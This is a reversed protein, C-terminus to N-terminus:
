NSTINPTTKELDHPSVQDQRDAEELQRVDRKEQLWAAAQSNVSARLVKHQKIEKELRTQLEQKAIECTGFAHQLTFHPTVTCIITIDYEVYRHRM